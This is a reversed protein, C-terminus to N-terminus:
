NGKMLCISEYIYGMTLKKDGDVIRLVRVVPELINIVM